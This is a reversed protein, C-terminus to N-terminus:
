QRPGEIEFHPGDLFTKGTRSVYKETESKYADWGDSGFDSLKRDWAGGWTILHALGLETAAQDMALAIKYCGTWDWTPKGNIYPVLDVALGDLHKSQMTKSTGNAVHQQQEKLTRLGDFVTFDQTSLELARRACAVLRKDVGQLEKESAASFKFGSKPTPTVQEEGGVAILHPKVGVSCFGIIQSSLPSVIGLTALYDNLESLEHM